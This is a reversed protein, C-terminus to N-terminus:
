HGTLKKSAVYPPGLVVEPQAFHEHVADSFVLEVVNNWATTAFFVGHSLTVKTESDEFFFPKKVQFYGNLRFPATESCAVFSGGGYFSFSGTYPLANDNTCPTPSKFKKVDALWKRWLANSRLATDSVVKFRITEEMPMFGTGHYGGSFCDVFSGSPPAHSDCRRKESRSSASGVAVFALCGVLLLASRRM